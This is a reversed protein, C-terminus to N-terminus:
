ITQRVPPKREVDHPAFRTAPIPDREQDVDIGVVLACAPAYERRQKVHVGVVIPGTLARRLLPPEPDRTLVSVLISGPTGKLVCHRCPMSGQQSRTFKHPGAWRRAKGAM